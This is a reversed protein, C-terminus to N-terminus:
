EANEDIRVEADLMGAYEPMLRDWEAIAKDIDDQTIETDGPTYIYEGEHRPPIKMHAEIGDEVIKAARGKLYPIIEPYQEIVARISKLVLEDIPADCSEGM